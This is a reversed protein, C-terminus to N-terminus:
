KLKGNVWYSLNNSFAGLLTKSKFFFFIDEVDLGILSMGYLHTAYNQVYM